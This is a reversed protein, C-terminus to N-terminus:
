QDKKKRKLIDMWEFWIKRDVKYDSNFHTFVFADDPIEYFEGM